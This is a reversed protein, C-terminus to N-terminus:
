MSLKQDAVAVCLSEVFAVFDIACLPSLCFLHAALLFDQDLLNDLNMM